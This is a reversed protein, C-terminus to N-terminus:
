LYPSDLLPSYEDYRRIVEVIIVEARGTRADEHRSRLFSEDKHCKNFPEEITLYGNQQALVQVRALSAM